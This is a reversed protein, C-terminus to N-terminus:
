SRDNKIIREYTEEFGPSYVNIIYKEFGMEVHKHKKFFKLYRNYMSEPFMDKATEDMISIFLKYDECKQKTMYSSFASYIIKNTEDETLYYNSVDMIYPTLSIGKYFIQIFSRNRKFELNGFRVYNNINLLESIM